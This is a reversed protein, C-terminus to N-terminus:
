LIIREQTMDFSAVKRHLLSLMAMNLAATFHFGFQYFQKSLEFQSWHGMPERGGVGIFGIGIADNAGLVRARSVYPAAAGVAAVTTAKVATSIFERRNVAPNFSQSAFTQRISM